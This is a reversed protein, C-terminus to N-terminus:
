HKVGKKVMMMALAQRASPEADLLQKVGCRMVDGSDSRAGAPRSRSCRRAATELTQAIVGVPASWTRESKRTQRAPCCQCCPRWHRLPRGVRCTAIYRGGSPLWNVQAGERAVSALAVDLQDLHHRIACIWGRANARQEPSILRIDEQQSGVDGVSVCCRSGIAGNIRVYKLCDRRWTIAAVM